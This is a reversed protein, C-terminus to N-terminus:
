HLSASRHGSFVALGDAGLMGIKTGCIHGDFSICVKCGLALTALEIAYAAKNKKGKLNTRREDEERKSMPM